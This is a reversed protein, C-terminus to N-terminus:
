SFARLTDEAKLKAAKMKEHKDNEMLEIIKSVWEGARYHVMFREDYAAFSTIGERQCKDLFLDLAENLYNIKGIREQEWDRKIWIPISRHHLAKYALMDIDVAEKEYIQAFIACDKPYMELLDYRDEIRTIATSELQEGICCKKYKKGSGCHCPDNRGMKKPKQGVPKEIGLTKEFKSFLDETDDNSTTPKNDRESKFCAWGGIESVTDEIYHSESHKDYFLWDIFNDYGGHMSEDVMDNEHLFRADPIM